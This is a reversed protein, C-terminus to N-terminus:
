RDAIVFSVLDKLVDAKPKTLTQVPGGWTWYDFSITNNVDDITIPGELAIAHYGSSAPNILQTKICVGIHNTNSKQISRVKTEKVSVSDSAMDLFTVKKYFGTERYWGALDPMYTDLDDDELSGDYVDWFHNESDRLSAMLMWDAQEPMGPHKTVYEKYNANRLTIGATIKFKGLYGSGFTFLPNVFQWIKNTQLQFIHHYFLAPVCLSLNTQNFKNPNKLLEDIRDM